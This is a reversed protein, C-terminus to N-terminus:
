AAERFVADAPDLRRRADGDSIAIVPAGDSIQSIAPASFWAGSEPDQVLLSAADSLGNNEPERERFMRYEQGDLLSAAERPQVTAAIEAPRVLVLYHGNALWASEGSAPDGPDGASKEFMTYALGNDAFLDNSDEPDIRFDEYSRSTTGVPAFEFAGFQINDTTTRLLDPPLLDYDQEAASVVNVAAAYIQEAFATADTVDIMLHRIGPSPEPARNVYLIGRLVREYVARDAKNFLYLDQRTGDSSNNRSALIGTGTLDYMLVECIGDSADNMAVHAGHIPELTETLSLGAAVAVPTDDLQRGSATAVVSDATQTALPTDSRTQDIKEAIERMM